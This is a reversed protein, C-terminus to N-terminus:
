AAGAHTDATLTVLIDSVEPLAGRRGSLYTARFIEFLVYDVKSAFCRASESKSMLEDSIARGCMEEFRVSHLRAAHPMMMKSRMAMDVIREGYRRVASRRLVRKTINLACDVVEHAPLSRVVAQVDRDLYPVRMEVGSAMSIHDVPDLQARELLEALSVDLTERIGRAPVAAAAVLRDRIEFARDSPSLGAEKARRFGDALSAITAAPDFYGGLTEDAGEGNLCVKATRGIHRCLLHLLPGAHLDPAEVAAITAPIAALYDAFGVTLLSHNSGIADAVRQAAVADPHLPDDAVTFTRLPRDAVEAAMFALMSSDIGGSLVAVVEVDSQMHTRVAALLARTFAEEPNEVTTQAGAPVQDAYRSHRIRIGGAWTVTASCGPQLTSVGAFFTRPGTLYGLAIFDAFAREDLSTQVAPHRLLAKAESAFLFPGSPGLCTFRLPKIGLPDRVLSLRDRELAAFAFMGSLRAPLESGWEVWGRLVVETDCTTRFAHGRAQLEHRLERCNYIEGNLVVATGTQEDVMPQLGNAPDMIALRASGIECFDRRLINSADPGRHRIADLLPRVDPPGCLTVVGALACM